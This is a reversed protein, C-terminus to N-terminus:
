YDGEVMELLNADAIWNVWVEQQVEESESSSGRWMDVVAAGRLGM